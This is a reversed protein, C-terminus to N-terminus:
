SLCEGLIPLILLGPVLPLLAFTARHVQKLRSLFGDALLLAATASPAPPTASLRASPRPAARPPRPSRGSTTTASGADLGRWARDGGVVDPARGATLTATTSIQFHFRFRRLPSAM